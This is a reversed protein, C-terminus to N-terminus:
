KSYKGKLVHEAEKVLLDLNPWEIILDAGDRYGDFPGFAQQDNLGDNECKMANVDTVIDRLVEEATRM